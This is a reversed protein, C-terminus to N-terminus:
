TSSERKLLSVLERLCWTAWKFAVNALVDTQIPFDLSCDKTASGILEDLKDSLSQPDAM